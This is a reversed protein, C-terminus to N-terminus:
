EDEAQALRDAIVSLGSSFHAVTGVEVGHDAFWGKRMEIVYRAPQSSRFRPMDEDAPGALPPDLSGIQTIRRADDVFALDLSMRCGRM